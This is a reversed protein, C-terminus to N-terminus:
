HPSTGAPVVAVISGDKTVGQANHGDFDSIYIESNQGTDVKFAIKTQAIGKTSTIAQVVDDAFAHAQRRASAGSYAKSLLTAKNHPDTLRGQVNGNNSGSILYQASAPDTFIPYRVEDLYRRSPIM